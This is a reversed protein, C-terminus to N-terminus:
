ENNIEVRVVEAIGLICDVADVTATGHAPLNKIVYPYTVGGFYEEGLPSRCYVVVQSLDKESRNTVSVTLGDVQVSLQEEMPTATSFVASCTTDACAADARIALNETSFVMASKGAPLDTVLFHVQKGNTLTMTIKAETLYADSTNKFIMSAINKGTQNGSDPNIGDFQFLSQIELKGDELIVPMQVAPLFAEPESTSAEPQTQTQGTGNSGTAEPQEQDQMWRGFWILLALFLSMLIILVALLLKGWKKKNGKKQKGM